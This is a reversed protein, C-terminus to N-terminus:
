AHFRGCMTEAAETDRRFIFSVNRSFWLRVRDHATGSRATTIRVHICDADPSGWFGHCKRHLFGSAISEHFSVELWNVKNYKMTAEEQRYEREPFPKTGLLDRRM